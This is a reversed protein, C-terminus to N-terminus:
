ITVKKGNECYAYFENCTLHYEPKLYEFIYTPAPTNTPNNEIFKNKIDLLMEKKSNYEHIGQYIGWSHEFWYHKDNNQYTLFTHSPLNNNDIDYTCIFYTIVDINEDNFLKRELEVQDWCVGCKKILLEEPSLLYYFDYFEEDWKKSDINIINQNNKDLFGYEIDDMITMIKKEIAKM